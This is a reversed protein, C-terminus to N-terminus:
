VQLFTIFNSVSFLMFELISAVQSVRAVRGSIGDETGTQLYKAVHM